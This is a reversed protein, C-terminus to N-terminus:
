CKPVAEQSPNGTQCNGGLLLKQNAEVLHYLFKGIGSLFPVTFLPSAPLFWPLRKTIYAFALPGSIWSGNEYLYLTQTSSTLNALEKQSDPQRWDVLKLFGFPDLRHLIGAARVAYICDGDYAFLRPPGYREYAAVKLKDMTKSLDEPYIFNLFSVVFLWEFMPLNMAWEIGLHLFLGALIVWYRLEKFWILAWLSFETVLTGWTLLKITLISDFFYPV